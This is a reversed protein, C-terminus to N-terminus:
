YNTAKSSKYDTNVHYQAEEKDLTVIKVFKKIM